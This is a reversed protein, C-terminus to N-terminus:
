GLSLKHIHTLLPAGELFFPPSPIQVSSIAPQEAGVGGGRGGGGVGFPFHDGV